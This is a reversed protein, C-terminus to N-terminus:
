VRLRELYKLRSLLCLGGELGFPQYDYHEPGDPFRCSDPFKIRLELLRPYVRVVYGYIVRSHQYGRLTAEGHFHIDLQLTELGRCVWIGPLSTEQQQEELLSYTTLCCHTDMFSAMYPMKLTKLHRLNSCEYLLQHLPGVTYLSVEDLCNRLWGDRHCFLRDTLLIELSTLVVPQEMLSKIVGPTLQCCLVAREEARPCISFTTEELEDGPPQSRLVSYHFRKLPLSLSQIHKSFRAWDWFYDNGAIKILKLEELNPTIRLFDELWPQYIHLHKIVLSWLPLRDPLDKLNGVTWPECIYLLVTSSLQLTELQPCQTLIKIM